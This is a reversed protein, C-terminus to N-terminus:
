GFMGWGPNDVVLMWDGGNGIHYHKHALVALALDPTPGFGSLASRRGTELNPPSTITAVFSGSKEVYSVSLKYGAEVMRVLDSLVDAPDLAADAFAAKDEDSLRLSVFDVGFDGPATKGTKTGTKGNNRAM